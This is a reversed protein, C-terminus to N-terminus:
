EEMRGDMAGKDNVAKKDTDSQKLESKQNIVRTDERGEQKECTQWRDRKEGDKEM